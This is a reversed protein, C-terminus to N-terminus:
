SSCNNESIMDNIRTETEEKSL